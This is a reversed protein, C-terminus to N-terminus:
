AEEDRARRRAADSNETGREQRGIPDAKGEGPHVGFGGQDSPTAMWGPAGADATENPAGAAAGSEGVVPDPDGRAPDNYSPRRHSSSGGQTRGAEPDIIGIPQGARSESWTGPTGAYDPNLVSDRAYAEYVFMRVAGWEGYRARYDDTWGHRLDTEIEDFNRGRYEPNHRAIHGLQYAPRATDGGRAGLRNPSAEWHRRYHREDEDTYAVDRAAGHGAWWGGVAGAIAGVATGIPGAVITGATAGAVAGATTGGVAGTVAAKREDEPALPAERAVYAARGQDTASAGSGIEPVRAAESEAVPLPRDTSDHHDAHRM